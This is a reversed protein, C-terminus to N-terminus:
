KYDQQANLAIVKNGDQADNYTLLKLHNKFSLANKNYRSMTMMANQAIYSTKMLIKVDQIM